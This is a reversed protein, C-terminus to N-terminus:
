REAHNPVVAGVEILRKQYLAWWGASILGREYITQIAIYPHLIAVFGIAKNGREHIRLFGLDALRRVRQRWSRVGREGRFGATEAYSSESAVEVIGEGYNDCWLGLYTRSLDMDGSVIKESLMRFIVPMVRPTPCWGAEDQQPWISSEVGPWLTERLRLRQRAPTQRRTAM